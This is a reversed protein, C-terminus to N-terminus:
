FWNEVIDQNFQSTLVFKFSCEALLFMALQQMAKVTLLLGNHFPLSAKETKKQVHIFKWKAIWDISDSLFSFKEASNATLPKKFKHDIKATRSNLIDFVCDIREV